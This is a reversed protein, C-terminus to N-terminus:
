PGASSRGPLRGPSSPTADTRRRRPCPSLEGATAQIGRRPAPQRGEVATRARRRSMTSCSGQHTPAQQLEVAGAQRAHEIPHDSVVAAGVLHHAVATDGFGVDAVQDVAADERAAGLVQLVAGDEDPPRVDRRALLQQARPGFLPALRERDRRHEVRVPRVRGRDGRHRLHHLRGSIHAAFADQDDRPRPGDSNPGGPQEGLRPRVHADRRTLGLGTLPGPVQHQLTEAARDAGDGHRIRAVRDLGALVRRQQEVRSRRPHHEDRLLRPRVARAELDDGAYIGNGREADLPHIHHVLPHRFLAHHAEPCEGDSVELHLHVLRAKRAPELAVVEHEVGLGDGVDRPLQHRRLRSGIGRTMPMSGPVTLMSRQPSSSPRRNRSREQGVASASASGARKTASSSAAPGSSRTTPGDPYPNGIVRTWSMVSSASRRAKRAAGPSGPPMPPSRLRTRARARVARGTTSVGPTTCRGVTGACRLTFRTSMPVASFTPAAASATDSCARRSPRGSDATDSTRSSSPPANVAATATAAPRITSPTPPEAPGSPNRAAPASSPSTAYRAPSTVLASSNPPPAAVMAPQSSVVAEGSRSACGAVGAPTTMVRTSSAPTDVRSMASDATRAPYSTTATSPNPSRSRWAQAVSTCTTLTSPRNLARAAAAAARSRDQSATTYSALKSFWGLATRARAVLRM